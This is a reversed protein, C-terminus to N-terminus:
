ANLKEFWCRVLYTRMYSVCFFIATTGVAFEPSVDFLFYTLICNIIAGGITNVLTEKHAKMNKM